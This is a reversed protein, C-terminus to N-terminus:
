AVRPGPAVSNEPFAGRAELIQFAIGGVIIVMITIVLIIISIISRSNDNNGNIVIAKWYKSLLVEWNLCTDYQTYTNTTITQKDQRSLKILINGRKTLGRKGEGPSTENNPSRIKRSLEAGPSTCAQPDPSAAAIQLKKPM